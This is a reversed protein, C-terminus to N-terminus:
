SSHEVRETGSDSQVSANAHTEVLRAVQERVESLENRLQAYGSVKILDDLVGRCAGLQVTENKAGRALAVMKEAVEGAGEVLKGVAADVLKTRIEQVRARFEDTGSWNIATDYSVGSAKCWDKVSSGTASALVLSDFKAANRRKM